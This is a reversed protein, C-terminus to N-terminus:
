HLNPKGTDSKREKKKRGRRKLLAFQGDLSKKNKIDRESHTEIERWRLEIKERRHTKIERWRHEIEESRKCADTRRSMGVSLSPRM